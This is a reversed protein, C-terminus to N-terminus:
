ATRAQEPLFALAARQAALAAWRAVVQPPVVLAPVDEHARATPINIAFDGM